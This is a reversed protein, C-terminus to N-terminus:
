KRKRSRKAPQYKRPPSRSDKAVPDDLWLKGAMATQKMHEVFARVTPSLGRNSPYVISAEVARLTWEPLLRILQLVQHRECAPLPPKRRGVAAHVCFPRIRKPGLVPQGAKWQPEEYTRLPLAIHIDAQLIDDPM